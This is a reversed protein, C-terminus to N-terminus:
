GRTQDMVALIKNVETRKTYDPQADM